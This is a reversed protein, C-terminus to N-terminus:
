EPNQNNPKQKVFDAQSRKKKTEPLRAPLAMIHDHSPEISLKPSGESLSLLKTLDNVQKRLAEIERSYKSERELMVQKMYKISHM